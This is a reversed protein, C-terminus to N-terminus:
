EARYGSTYFEPVPLDEPLGDGFEPVDSSVHVGPDAGAAEFKVHIIPDPNRRDVFGDAPVRRNYRAALSAQGLFKWDNETNQYPEGNPKLVPTPQSILVYHTRRLHVGHRFGFREWCDAFWEGAGARAPAESYFPDNAPALALLDEVRCGMERALAKVDHYGRIM